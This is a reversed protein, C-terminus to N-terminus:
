VPTMLLSGALDAGSLKAVVPLMSAGELDTCRDMGAEGAGNLLPERLLSDRLLSERFLSEGLLPEEVLPEGLLSEPFLPQSPWPRLPIEQATGPDLSAGHLVLGAAASAWLTSRVWAQKAEGVFLHVCDEASCATCCTIPGHSCQM